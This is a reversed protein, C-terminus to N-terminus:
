HTKLWSLIGAAIANAIRAQGVESTLIVSEDLNRMNECEVLVAPRRALNLGALDSRPSLGNKGIYTSTSLGASRMGDRLANALSVSPEGQSQSLAPSSYAVHFGHGSPPGGDAHISVMADAGVRQAMAGRVDVCPGIGTDNDRTMLVTVGNAQLTAKVRQSVIWAFEHEPYGRASATGTTNCPKTGGRGDPVKKNAQAPAAANGGNHGPDLLIIRRDGQVTGGPGAAASSEVESRATSGGSGAGAALGCGAV